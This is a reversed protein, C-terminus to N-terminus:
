ADHPEKKAAQRALWACARRIRAPWRRQRKADLRVLRKEYQTQLDRWRQADGIGYSDLVVALEETLDWENRCLRELQLARLRENGERLSKVIGELAWEALAEKVHEGPHTAYDPDFDHLEDPM